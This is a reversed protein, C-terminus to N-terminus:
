ESDSAEAVAEGAKEREERLWLQFDRTEIKANWCALWIQYQLQAQEIKEAATSTAVSKGNKKLKKYGKNHNDLQAAIDAASATVFISDLRRTVTEGMENTEFTYLATIPPKFTHGLTTDVVSFDDKLYSGVYYVKEDPDRNCTTEGSGQTCSSAM